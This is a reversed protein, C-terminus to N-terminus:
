PRRPRRACHCGLLVAHLLSVAEPELTFLKCLHPSQFVYCTKEFYVRRQM